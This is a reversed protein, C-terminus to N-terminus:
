VLRDDSWRWPRRRFPQPYVFGWRCPAFLEFLGDAPGIQPVELQALLVVLWLVNEHRLVAVGVARLRFRLAVLSDICSSVDRLEIVVPRGDM